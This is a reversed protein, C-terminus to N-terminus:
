QSEMQKWFNRQFIFTQSVRKLVMITWKMDTLGYYSAIKEGFGDELIGDELTIVFEHDEKLGELLEKDLGTIFKSNIVTM